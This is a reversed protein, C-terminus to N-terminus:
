ENFTIKKSGMACYNVKNKTKRTFVSFGFDKFGLDNAFLRFIKNNTM